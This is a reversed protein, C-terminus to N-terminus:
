SASLMEAYDISSIKGATIVLDGVKDIIGDLDSPSPWRILTIAMGRNM